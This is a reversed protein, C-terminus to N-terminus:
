QGLEGDIVAVGPPPAFKFKEEAIDVNARQNNFRFETVSGDVEEILIRRIWSEPTIELVVETVRGTMAQPVGRLVHDGSELPTVDPAESLGRLEKELRTKGLLFGIPSRLDELHKLQSRQVQKDGPVWFWVDRGDSVFLKEKPSRYEWRMKGPKKLWLTGTGSRDSGAGGYTETFDSQLTKIHNYKDDVASALQAVDAAPSVSGFLLCVIALKIISPLPNVGNYNV